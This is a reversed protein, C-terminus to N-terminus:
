LLHQRQIQIPRYNKRSSGISRFLGVLCKICAALLRSHAWLENPIHTWHGHIPGNNKCYISGSFKSPGLKLFLKKHMYKFLVNDENSKLIHSPMLTFAGIGGSMNQPLLLCWLHEIRGSESWPM